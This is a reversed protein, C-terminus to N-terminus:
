VLLEIIQMMGLMGFFASLQILTAIIVVKGTRDAQPKLETEYWEQAEEPTADRPKWLPLEMQKPYKM